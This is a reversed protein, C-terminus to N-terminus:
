KKPAADKKVPKKAKQAPAAKPKAEKKAPAATKASDKLIPIDSKGWGGASFAMATAAVIAMAVKNM